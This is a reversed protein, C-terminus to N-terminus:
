RVIKRTKGGKRQIYIAHGDAKDRRQGSLTWIASPRQDTMKVERVGMTGFLAHSFTWQWGLQEPWSAYQPTENVRDHSQAYQFAELMAVEGDGNTDADVPNGDEDAGNVACTWHYVFEDYTRDPCVWSRENGSCATAIVRGERMLDTVFGGSYCQGMLINITGVRFMNLLAALTYDELREDDWLWLFSDESDENDTGGHDIVYLFLHDDTGLRRSMGLLVNTLSQSNAPYDVDPQGDGDLDVPSSLFGRGDARLMDEDSKGGDSMLVTINRKPVHYTQRLSRYLFACDNWYREHNTLRNRGGNVLVAYLHGAGTDQAYGSAAMLSLVILVIMFLLRKVDRNIICIYCM